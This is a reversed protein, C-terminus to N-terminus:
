HFIMVKAELHQFDKASSLFRAKFMKIKMKISKSTLKMSIKYKRTNKKRPFLQNTFDKKM